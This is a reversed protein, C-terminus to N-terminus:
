DPEAFEAPTAWIGADSPAARTSTDAAAADNAAVVPPPAKTPALAIGIEAQPANPDLLISGQGRPPESPGGALALLGLGIAAVGLLLLARITTMATMTGTTM